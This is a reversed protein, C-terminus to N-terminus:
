NEGNSLISLSEKEKNEWNKKEKRQKYGFNKTIKRRADQICM